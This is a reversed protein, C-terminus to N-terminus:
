KLKFNYYVIVDSKKIYYKNDITIFDTKWGEDIMWDEKKYKKVIFTNGIEKYYWSFKNDCKIIKVKRTYFIQYLYKKIKKIM